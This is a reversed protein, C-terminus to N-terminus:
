GNAVELLVDAHCPKSLPCWCAMNFVLCQRLRPWQDIPKRFVLQVDLGYQIAGLAPCGSRVGAVFRRYAEVADPGNWPNGYITPRGVYIANAPMTWGKTRRRQVRKLRDAM